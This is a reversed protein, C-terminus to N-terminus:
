FVKEKKFSLIMIQTALSRLYGETVRVHEDRVNAHTSATFGIGGGLDLYMRRYSLCCEPPRSKM